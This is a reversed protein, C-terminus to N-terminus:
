HGLPRVVAVAEPAAVARAGCRACGVGVALIGAFVRPRQWWSEDPEPPEVDTPILLVVGWAFFLGVMAVRAAVEAVSM